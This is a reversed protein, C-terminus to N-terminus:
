IKFFYDDFFINVLFVSSMVMFNIIFYYCAKVEFPTSFNRFDFGPYMAQTYRSKFSRKRFVVNSAYFGLRMLFNPRGWKEHTDKLEKGLRKDLTFYLITLSIIINLFTVIFIVTTIWGYTSIEQM